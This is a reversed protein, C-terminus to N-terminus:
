GGLVLVNLRASIEDVPLVEDLPDRSISANPMSPDLADSPLQVICLGGASRITAMGDAGDHDGGTLIIGIVRAGYVAAATEFLRNVAPRAFHVKPGSDLALRGETTVILHRDPSAMYVHGQVPTEGDEAYSVPLQIQRGLMTALMRPSNAGMHLVVLVIAPFGAPLERCVVALARLGGLSGGIVVVNRLVKM